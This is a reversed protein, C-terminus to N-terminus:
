AAGQGPWDRALKHYAAWDKWTTLRTQLSAFPPARSGGKAIKAQFEVVEGALKSATAAPGIQLQITHILRIITNDASLQAPM